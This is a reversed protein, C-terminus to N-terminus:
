AAQQLTGVGAGELAYVHCSRSGGVPRSVAGLKSLADEVTRKKCGTKACLDDKTLQWPQQLLCDRVKDRATPKPKGDEPDRRFGQDVSFLLGWSEGTPLDGDRDKFFHLRGHGQKLRQIGLM